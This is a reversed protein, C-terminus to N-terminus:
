KVVLRGGCSLVGVSCCGSVGYLVDGKGVGVGVVVGIVWGIGGVWLGVGLEEGLWVV